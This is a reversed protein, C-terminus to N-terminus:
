VQSQPEHQIESKLNENLSVSVFEILAFGKTDDCLPCNTCILLASHWVGLKGAGLAGGARMIIESHHCLPPQCSM